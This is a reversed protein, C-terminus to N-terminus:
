SKFPNSVGPFGSQPSPLSRKAAHVQNMDTVNAAANQEQNKAANQSSAIRMALKYWHNRERVTLDRVDRPTWAPFNWIIAEIQDYILYYNM